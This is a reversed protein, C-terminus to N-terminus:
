GQGRLKLAISMDAQTMDKLDDTGRYAIVIEGTSVNQFATASFGNSQNETAIIKYGLPAFNSTYSANSLNAYNLITTSSVTSAGM